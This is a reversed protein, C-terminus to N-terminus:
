KKDNEDDVVTYDTDYVNGDPGPIEERATPDPRERDVRLSSIFKQLFITFCSRSRKM